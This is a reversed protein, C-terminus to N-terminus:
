SSVVESENGDRDIAKFYVTTNNYVTVGGSYKTWDGQGVKYLRSSLEGRNDAFEATVVVPQDTPATASVQINSVTPAITDIASVTLILKQNRTNLKLRFSNNVLMDDTYKGFSEGETTRVDSIDTYKFGSTVDALVYTGSQQQADVTLTYVPKFTRVGSRCQILTLDNYLAATGPEILSVDFDIIARSSLASVVGDSEITVRGTLKGGDKVYIVSGSDVVANRVTAGSGIYYYCSAIAFDTCVGDVIGFPVGEVVGEAYTECDTLLFLSAGSMVEIGSASGGASVYLNGGSKVTIGNVKGGYIVRLYANSNITTDKMVAGESVYVMGGDSQIVTRSVVGGSEVSLFGGEELSIGNATGGSSVYMCGHDNITTNNALGGSLVQFGTSGNAVCSNVITDNVVVGASVCFLESTQMVHGDDGAIPPVPNDGVRLTLADDSLDLTYNTELITVTEGVSILGLEAGFKNVVTISGSFGAAGNALTYVAAQQEPDITVTYVPAGQIASLDSICATGWPLPVLHIVSGDCASVIGGERCIIKGSLKGGSSLIVAGDRSITMDEASVGSGIELYGSNVHFGSVIGDRIEFRRGTRTDEIYQTGAVYTDTGISLGLYAGSTLAINTATTIRAESDVAVNDVSAGECVTMAAGGFLTVSNATGGIVNMSGGSSVAVYDAAGAEVILNGHSSVAVAALLGASSALLTDHLVVGAATGGSLVAM